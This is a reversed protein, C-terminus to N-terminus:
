KKELANVRKNLKDIRQGQVANWILVLMLGVGVIVLVWQSSM